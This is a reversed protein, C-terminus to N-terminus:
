VSSKRGRLQAAFAAVQFVEEDSMWAVRMRRPRGGEALLYSDGPMSPDLNMANYGQDAWGAGLAVDSSGPTSCRGVWRYAFLDRLATPVIDWSARQTFACVIIGAARGRAVVDRLLMSFLEQEVKNGAVSTFYALEDLFVVWAPDAATPQHKRIRRASMEAYRSDMLQQLWLLTALAKRMDPGVFVDFVDLWPQLEVLKGDFGILRTDVCLATQAIITQEFGSKGSGPEGGGLVNKYAFCLKVAEGTAYKGVLFEDMITMNPGVATNM